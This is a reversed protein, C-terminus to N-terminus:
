KFYVVRAAVAACNVQILAKGDALQTVTVGDASVAVNASVQNKTIYNYKGAHNAFIAVLGKGTDPNVKEYIEHSDGICGTLILATSTVDKRVAKYHDLQQNMFQVDAEPLPLIEGWIGNQGLMLSAMNQEQSARPADPFYHTLFLVSPIWKDYDLVMRTYWGRAPGPQVFINPNGDPTPSKWDECVDFNHYYPGNNMIFFKGLSLFLLGAFRGDETIDFDFIAEPCHDIVREMVKGMYVPLMYAYLENREEPTNNENGHFHHPDNCGYQQVGDWKFYTVGLEDILEILRQAYVEWYPGVLCLGVSPETEWIELPDINKGNLTMRSPENEALTRSTLAAMTPNFWLGLKMGYSDLKAKIQKLGDAFFDTNVEWDGTRFYWGTDIVYVEIGMAAARDIEQLTYDLTMSALYTSGGWKVREQRGWTNYFVHPQRSALQPQIGNLMFERYTAAMADADGVIAGVQFWVTEFANNADIVFNTAYNPKAAVVTVSRNPAFAFNFFANPYQAGHEYAIVMSTENNTFSLIPGVVSLSNQFYAAPITTETLHTAHIKENFESLRVETVDHYDSTDVGFYVANEKGNSKTMTVALQSQLAVRFRIIPSNDSIRVTLLVALQKHGSEAKFVIEKIQNPLQKESVQKPSICQLQTMVGDLEITPMTVNVVKSLGATQFSFLNSKKSFQIKVTDM